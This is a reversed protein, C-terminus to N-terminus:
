WDRFTVSIERLTLPSSYCLMMETPHFSMHQIVYILSLHKIFLLFNSISPKLYFSHSQHLHLHYIFPGSKSSSVAWAPINPTWAILFHIPNSFKFLLAPIIFPWIFTCGGCGWASWSCKRQLYARSHCILVIQLYFTSNLLANSLKKQSLKTFMFILYPSSSCNVPNM